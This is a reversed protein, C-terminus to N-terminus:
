HTDFSILGPTHLFVIIRGIVINADIKVIWREKNDTIWVKIGKKRSFFTSNKMIARLTFAQFENGETDKITEKGLYVIQQRFLKDYLMTQFEITDGPSYKEYDWLRLYHVGSYPDTIFEPLDKRLNINKAHKGSQKLSMDVVKNEWDFVYTYDYNIGQEINHEEFRLPLFSNYDTISTYHDELDYVWRYKERTFADVKFEYARKNEYTLTDTSFMAYAGYVWVMSFKYYVRYELNEKVPLRYGTDIVVPHVQAPLPIAM